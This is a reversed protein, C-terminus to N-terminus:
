NREARRVAVLVIWRLRLMLMLMLMLRRGPLDMGGLRLRWGAAKGAEKASKLRRDIEEILWDVIQGANERCWGPGRANMEAIRSSCGCGPEIDEGTWSKILRHLQAGCGNEALWRQKEREAEAKASDVAQGDSKM